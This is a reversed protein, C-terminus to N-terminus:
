QHDKLNKFCIDREVAGRDPGHGSSSGGTSWQQRRTQTRIHMRTDERDRSTLASLKAAELVRIATQATRVGRQPLRGAAPGRATRGPGAASARRYETHYEPHAHM